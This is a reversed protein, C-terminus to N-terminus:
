WIGVVDEYSIASEVLGSGWEKVMRKYHTVRKTSEWVGSDVGNQPLDIAEGSQFIELPM